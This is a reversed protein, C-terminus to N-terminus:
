IIDCNQLILVGGRFIHNKSFLPFSSFSISNKRLRYNHCFLFSFLFYIKKMWEQKMVNQHHFFPAFYESYLIKERKVFFCVSPMGAEPQLQLCYRICWYCSSKIVVMCMLLTKSTWNIERCLGMIILYIMGKIKCNIGHM